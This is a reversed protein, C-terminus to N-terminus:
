DYVEIVSRTKPDVVVRQGNVIAYAYGDNDPIVQYEVADPLPQGRVLRGELTVSPVDHEIVYSRVGSPVEVLTGPAAEETVVTTTTTTTQALVPGGLGVLALSAAALVNRM